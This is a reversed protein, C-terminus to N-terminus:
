YNTADAQALDWRSLDYLHDFSESLVKVVFYSEHGCESFGMKDVIKRLVTGPMAWLNIRSVDLKKIEQCAYILLEHM